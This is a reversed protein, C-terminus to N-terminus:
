EEDKRPKITFLPKYGQAIAGKIELEEQLSLSIEGRWTSGAHFKGSELKMRESGSLNILAWGKWEFFVLDVKM